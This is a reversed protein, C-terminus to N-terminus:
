TVSFILFVLPTSSMNATHRNKWSQDFCEPVFYPGQQRNYPETNYRNTGYPIHIAFLHIYQIILDIIYFLYIDFLM